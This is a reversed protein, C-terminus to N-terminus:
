EQQTILADVAVTHSPYILLPNVELEVLTDPKNIAYQMIKEITTAIATIDAAPKGRYGQLLPFIKLQTLAHTIATRPAPILLHTTDKILEAHIGGAGITLIFGHQPDRIIGIILEAIAPPQMTELLHTPSLPQLQQYANQLQEENKINLIVGGHETKHAIGITKLVLPTYLSTDTPTDSSHAPYALATAAPQLQSQDTILRHPPVAIGHQQLQQKAIYENLTHPPQHHNPQRPPPVLVPPPPPQSAATGVQYATAIADVADTIGLLVVIGKQQLPQLHTEPFNEPLTAILAGRQGTTALATTFADTTTQWDESQCRDPRPYDIILCLLDHEGQAMATFTATLAPRDAWIFTHYDLPNAIAVMGNLTARIQQAHAPTLAPLQLNTGSITDAMLAAEGGSCSLSAIRNGGLAGGFHLLKLTELLVALSYVRGIGLRKLLADAGVDSGALSATHSLAAQQAQQSQGIKIAIIFKGYRRATAAMAQFDALNDIAEIYLGIASVREDALLHSAIQSLGMQAQNGVTIIFSIPLGRQQMTLNIAINSSQAIIAVGRSVPHPAGGQQDPWLSAQNCYNIFGYCNPGLIPMDAAAQLLQTQLSNDANDADSDADSDADASEAFGSAFCVAGGAGMQRLQLVAAITATRNIGIFVADPATPLDAITAVCPRDSTTQRTPHVHWIEGRFGGQRCTQIVNDAWRGGIVAIHRPNLLRNLRAADVRQKGMGRGGAGKVRNSVNHM